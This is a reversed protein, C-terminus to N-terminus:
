QLQLEKNIDMEYLDFKKDLNISGVVSPISPISVNVKSSDQPFAHHIYDQFNLIKNNNTTITLINKKKKYSDLDSFNVDNNIINFSKFNILFRDLIYFIKITYNLNYLFYDDFIEANDCNFIKYFLEYLFPEANIFRVDPFGIENQSKDYYKIKYDMNRGDDFKINITAINKIEKLKIFLMSITYLLIQKTYTDNKEQNIFTNSFTVSYTNQIYENDNETKEFVFIYINKYLNIDMYEKMHINGEQNLFMHEEFIKNGMMDSDTNRNLNEDVIIIFFYMNKGNEKLCFSFYNNLKCSGGVQINNKTNLYKNKYKIYKNYKEYINDDNLNDNNLNNICTM